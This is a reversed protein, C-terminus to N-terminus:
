SGILPLTGGKMKHWLLSTAAGTMLPHDAVFGKVPGVSFPNMMQQSRFYASLVMPGLMAAVLNGATLGPHKATKETLDHRAIASKVYPHRQVALVLNKVHTPVSVAEYALKLYAAYADKNQPVGHGATKTQTNLNRYARDGFYSLWDSRQHMSKELIEFLPMSVKDFDITSPAGDPFVADFESPLLTIGAVTLTAAVKEPDARRLAYITSTPLAEAKKVNLPVCAKIDKLHKAKAEQAVAPIQKEIDAKKDDASKRAGERVYGIKFLKPRDPWEAAASEASAVKALSYASPDAPRGQGAHGLVSIDFFNPRPNHVGVKRGDSYIRNMEHRAHKCYEGRHKAKNKCISCVDYPVKTGMSVAIKENKDIADVVDPAQRESVPIILEVRRMEPNWAALVVKGGISLKPDHNKHDRFTHANKAFTHYGWNRAPDDNVLTAEKVGDVEMEEPFGDGNRNFGWSEESGLGHVLLLRKGKVPEATKMFEEVAPPMYIAMGARKEWTRSFMDVAPAEGFDVSPAVYKIFGDM